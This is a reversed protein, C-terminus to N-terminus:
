CQRHIEFAILNDDNMFKTSEYPRGILMIGFQGEM